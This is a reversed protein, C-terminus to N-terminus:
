TDNEIEKLFLYIQHLDEFDLSVALSGKPDSVCIWGPSNRWGLDLTLTYAGKEIAIRNQQTM